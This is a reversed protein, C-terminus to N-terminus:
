AEHVHEMCFAEILAIEDDELEADIYAETTRELLEYKVLKGQGESVGYIARVMLGNSHYLEDDEPLEIDIWFEYRKGALIGYPDKIEQLSFETLEM